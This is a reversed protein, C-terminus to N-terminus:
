ARRRLEATGLVAHWRPRRYLVQVVDGPRPLGPAGDSAGPVLVAEVQEAGLASEAAPRDPFTTVAVSGGNLGAVQDMRQELGAPPRGVYGLDVRNEGGALSAQLLFSGIVFVETLILSGLFGKSRGRELLERKAVLWIARVRSM